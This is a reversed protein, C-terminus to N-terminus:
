RTRSAGPNASAQLLEIEEYPFRRIFGLREYLRMAGPNDDAVNLGVTRFRPALLSTLHQTVAAGLGLGRHAPDTIVAGIAAVGYRDSLVHSGASALLRVGDRIGVYVGEVVMDPLFFAAGPDTEHLAVLAGVDSESLEQVEPVGFAPRGDHILRWHVGLDRIERLTGIREALGIPGTVMAGGPLEEAMSALLDMTQTPARESMAYIAKDPSGAFGVVGVAVEGEVWWESRSWHPEELDALGYLHVVPDAGFIAELSAPDVCRAAM